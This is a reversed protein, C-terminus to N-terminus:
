VENEATSLGINTAPLQWPAESSAGYMKFLVIALVLMGSSSLLVPNATCVYLYSFYGLFLYHSARARPDALTRLPYFILVYLLPSLVFGYNRLIEFYSPEAITTTNAWASSFFPAGLGQGFLFTRWDSLLTGYDRLHQVKVSNGAEDPSLMAQLVGTGLGAALALVLLGAIILRPRGPRYWAIVMLPTFIGVIMNNRTGSRLMGCVNLIVLFLNGFKAWGQTHLYRYSFYALAVTIIPSSHFYVSEYTLGAYTRDTISFITYTDGFLAIPTRLIDNTITVLYVLITAVSVTSLLFSLPRVLDIRKSVLPICVTLFLYSKLYRFGEYDELSGGRLIYVLMGTLPILLAFVFVYLYLKTPVPYRQPDFLFIDALFLIWIVTFVPVKIRFLLDSPDYLAVLVLLLVNLRLLKNM